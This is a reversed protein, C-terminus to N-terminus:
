CRDGGHRAEAAGATWQAGGSGAACLEGHGRASRCIDAYEAVMSVDDEQMVETVIALGSEDRARALMKLGDPGGKFATLLVARSSRGGRLIRAGARRVPQSHGDVSVREVSCPGAM